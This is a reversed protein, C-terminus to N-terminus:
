NTFNILGRRALYNADFSSTWVHNLSPFLLTQTSCIFINQLWVGISKEIWVGLWALSLFSSKALFYFYNWENILAVLSNFKPVVLYWTRSKNLIWHLSYIALLKLQIKLNTYWSNKKNEKCLKRQVFLRM